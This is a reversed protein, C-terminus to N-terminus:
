GVLSAKGHWQSSVNYVGQGQQKMALPTFKRKSQADVDKFNVQLISIKVFKTERFFPAMVKELCGKEFIEPTSSEGSSTAMASSLKLFSFM